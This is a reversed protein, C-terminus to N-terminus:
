TPEQGFRSPRGDLIADLAQQQRKAQNRREVAEAKLIENRLEDADAIREQAVAIRHLVDVLEEEFTPPDDREVIGMARRTANIDNM